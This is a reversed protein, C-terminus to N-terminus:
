IQQKMPESVFLFEQMASQESHCLESGIKINSIPNHCVICNSKAMASIDSEDVWISHIVVKREDLAGLDNVYQILSKGFKKKGLVRQLRTELIHINFPLDVNLHTLQRLYYEPGVNPHQVLPQADFGEMQNGMGAISLTM